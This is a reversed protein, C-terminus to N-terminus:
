RVEPYTSGQRVRHRRGPIPDARGSRGARALRFIYPCSIGHRPFRVYQHDLGILHRRQAQRRIALGVGDRRVDVRQGFVARGERVTVAVVRDAPRGARRHHGAAQRGIDSGEVVAGFEGRGLRGERMVHPREAVLRRKRALHMEDPRVLKVAEFLPQGGVDVGGVEGPGGVPAPGLFGVGGRHHAQQADDLRSIAFAIELDVVVLLDEHLGPPFEVVVGARGVVPREQQVDREGLRVIGEDRTAFVPVHVFAAVDGLRLHRVYGVLGPVGPRLTIVQGYALVFEVDRWLLEVVGPSAIERHDAM